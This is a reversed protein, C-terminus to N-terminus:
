LKFSQAKSTQMGHGVVAYCSTQQLVNSTTKDLCVVSFLMAFSLLFVLIFLMRAWWDINSSHACLMCQKGHLSVCMDTECAHLMFLVSNETITDSNALKSKNCNWGIESLVDVVVNSIRSECSDSIYAHQMIDSTPFHSFSSSAKYETPNFVPHNGAYIAHGALAHATRTKVDQESAFVTSGNEFRLHADFISTTAYMGQTMSTGILSYIGMAHILEHTLVSVSDHMNASFTSQDSTCSKNTLSINTNNNITIYTDHLSSSMLSQASELDGANIAFQIALTMPVWVSEVQLGYLSGLQLVFVSQTQMIANGINEYKFPAIRSVFVSEDLQCVNSISSVANQLASAMQLSSRHNIHTEASTAHALM